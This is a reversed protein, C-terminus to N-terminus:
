RRRADDASAINAAVLIVREGRGDAHVARAFAVVEDRAPDLDDVWLEAHSPYGIWVADHAAWEPKPPTRIM